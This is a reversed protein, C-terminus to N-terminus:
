TEFSSDSNSLIEDLLNWSAYLDDEYSPGAEGYSDNEWDWGYLQRDEIDVVEQIPNDPYYPTQETVAEVISVDPLFSDMAQQVVAEGFHLEYGMEIAVYPQDGEKLLRYLHTHYLSFWLPIIKLPTVAINFGHFHAGLINIELWLNAQSELYAQIYHDVMAVEEFTAPVALDPVYDALFDTKGTEAGYFVDFDYGFDIKYLSAPSADAFITSSGEISMVNAQHLKKSLAFAVFLVSFLINRM